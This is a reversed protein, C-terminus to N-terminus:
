MEDYRDKGDVGGLIERFSRASAFFVFKQTERLFIYFQRLTSITSNTKKVAHFVYKIFNVHSPLKNYQAFFRFPIIVCKSHLEEDRPDGVIHPFLFPFFLFVLQFVLSFVREVVFSLNLLLFAFAANLLLLILQLRYFNINFIRLTAYINCIVSM